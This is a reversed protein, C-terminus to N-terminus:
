FTQEAFGAIKHVSFPNTEGSGIERRAMQPFPPLPQDFYGTRALSAGCNFHRRSGANCNLCADLITFHTIPLYETETM